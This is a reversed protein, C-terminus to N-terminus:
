ADEPANALNSKLAECHARDLLLCFLPPSRPFSSELNAKPLRLRPWQKTEVKKRKGTSYRFLGTPLCYVPFKSWLICLELVKFINKKCPFNNLNSFDELLNNISWPRCFRVTKSSARQVRLFLSESAKLSSPHTDSLIWGFGIPDTTM